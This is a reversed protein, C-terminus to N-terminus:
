LGELEIAAQWEFFASKALAEDSWGDDPEDAAASLAFASERL